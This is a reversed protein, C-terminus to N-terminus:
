GTVPAILDPRDNGLANVRASVPEAMLFDDSVARLLDDFSFVSPETKVLWYRKEGLRRANASAAPQERAAPQRAM